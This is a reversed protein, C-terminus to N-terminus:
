AFLHYKEFLASSSFLSSCQFKIKDGGEQLSYTFFWTENPELRKGDKKTISFTITRGTATFVGSWKESKGGNKQLVSMEGDEKCEIITRSKGNRYIWKGYCKPTTADNYADNLSKGAESITESLVKGTESLAKKGAESFFKGAESLAKKGQAGIEAWEKEIKESETQESNQGNSENGRSEDAFVSFGSSLILAFAFIMFFSIQRKM